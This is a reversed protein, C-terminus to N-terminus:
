KKGTEKGAQLEGILDGMRLMEALIPRKIFHSYSWM